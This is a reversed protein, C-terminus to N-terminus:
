SYSSKGKRQIEKCLGLRGRQGKVVSLLWEYAEDILALSYICKFEFLFVPTKNLKNHNHKRPIYVIKNHDSGKLVFEIFNSNSYLLNWGVFHM